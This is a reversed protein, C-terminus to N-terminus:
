VEMALKFRMANAKSNFHVTFSTLGPDMRLPLGLEVLVRKARDQVGYVYEMIPSLEIVDQGRSPIVFTYDLQHVDLTDYYEYSINCALPKM